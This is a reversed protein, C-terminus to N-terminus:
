SQSAHTTTCPRFINQSAPTDTYNVPTPASATPLLPTAIHIQKRSAARSESNAADVNTEFM